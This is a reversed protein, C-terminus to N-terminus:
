DKAYRGSFIHEVRRPVIWPIATMAERLDEEFHTPSPEPIYHPHGRRCWFVWEGALKRIRRYGLAGCVPCPHDRRPKIFSM